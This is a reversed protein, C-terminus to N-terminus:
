LQKRIRDYGERIEAGLAKTAEWIDKSAEKAEGGVQKAKGEFHGWKKELVEWEDKADAAALHMKVRLEDRQQKLNDFVEKIDDKDVM